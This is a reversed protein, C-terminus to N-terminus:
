MVMNVKEKIMESVEEITDPSAALEEMQVKLKVLRIIKSILPGDIKEKFEKNLEKKDERLISLEREIEFRRKIYEQVAIADYAVEKKTKPM